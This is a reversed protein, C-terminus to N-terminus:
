EPSKSRTSVTDVGDPENFPLWFLKSLSPEITGIGTQAVPGATFSGFLRDWIIANCAYNSNSTEFELSHHRRHHNSCTLLLGLGPTAMSVNAHALISNTLLLVSAAGVASGEVGFLAALLVLPLVVLILEFPHNSGANLGSLNQFAHHFAHGSARWLSPSAHIARHIWYYIFDSAFYLLLAQALPPWTRPWFQAALNDRLPAVADPLISAYASIFVSSLALTLTYLVALRAYTTLNSKWRPVAPVLQEMALVLSIVAVLTVLLALDGRGLASWIGYACVLVLPQGISEIVRAVAMNHAM